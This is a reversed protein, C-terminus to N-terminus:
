QNKNGMLGKKRCGYLLLYLSLIIFMLESFAITFYSVPFIWGLNPISNDENYIVVTYIFFFPYYIIAEISNYIYNIMAYVHLNRQSSSM